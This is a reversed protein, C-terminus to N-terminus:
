DRPQMIRVLGPGGKQGHVDLDIDGLTLNTLNEERSSVPAEKHCARSRADKADERSQTRHVPPLPDLVRLVVWVPDTPTGRASAEKDMWMIHACGSPHDAFRAKTAQAMGSTVNEKRANPADNKKPPLTCASGDAINAGGLATGPRRPAKGPVRQSTRVPTSSAAGCVRKARDEIRTHYLM